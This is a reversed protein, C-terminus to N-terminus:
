KPATFFVFYKQNRAISAAFVIDEGVMKGSGDGQVGAICCRHVAKKLSLVFMPGFSM